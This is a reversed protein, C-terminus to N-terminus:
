SECSGARQGVLPPSVSAGGAAASYICIDISTYIYMYM